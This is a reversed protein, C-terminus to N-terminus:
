SNSVSSEVRMRDAWSLAANATLPLQDQEIPGNSALDQGALLGLAPTGPDNIPEAGVQLLLKGSDFAVAGAVQLVHAAQGLGPGVGFYHWLKHCKQGPPMQPHQEVLELVPLLPLPVETGGDLVAPAPVDQHKLNLTPKALPFPLCDGVKLPGERRRVGIQGFLDQFIRVVEIKQGDGTLRVLPLDLTTQQDM